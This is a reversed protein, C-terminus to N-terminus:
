NSNSKPHPTCVQYANVIRSVITSSSQIAVCCPQAWHSPSLQKVFAQAGTDAIRGIQFLTMEGTCSFASRKVHKDADRVIDPRGHKDTLRDMQRSIDGPQLTQSAAMQIVATALVSCLATAPKGPPLAQQSQGGGLLLAARHCPLQQEPPERGFHADEMPRNDLQAGVASCTQGQSCYLLRAIIM